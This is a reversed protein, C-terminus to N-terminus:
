HRPVPRARGCGAKTNMRRFSTSTSCCKGKPNQADQWFNFVYQHNLSGYPIRDNADMFALLTDYDSKYDPDAQLLGLAKANQEKVWALPKEGHVEELWLYPDSVNTQDEKATVGPGSLVAAGVGFGLVIWGGLRMEDECTRRSGIEPVARGGDIGRQSLRRQRRILGAMVAKRFICPRPLSKTTKSARFPLKASSSAAARAMASLLNPM